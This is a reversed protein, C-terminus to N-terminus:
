DSRHRHLESLSGDGGRFWICDVVGPASAVIRDVVVRVTLSSALFVSPQRRAPDHVQDILLMVAYGARKAAVLQGGLKGVLSSELAAVVQGEISATDALWTAIEVSEPNPGEREFVQVSTFGDGDFWDDGSSIAEEAHKVIDSYYADIEPRAEAHRRPPLVGVFLCCRHRDALSELQGRLRREADDSSPLVTPEYALRMHEIAWLTGDIRAAADVTLPHSLDDEPYSILEADVGVKARLEDLFETIAEREFVTSPM